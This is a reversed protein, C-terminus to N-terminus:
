DRPWPSRVARRVGLATALSGFPALLLGQYSALLYASDGEPRGVAGVLVVSLWILGPIFGGLRSGSCRGGYAAVFFMGPGSLILSALLRPLLSPHSSPALPPLLALTWLAVVAALASLVGVCVWGLGAESRQALPPEPPSEAIDM